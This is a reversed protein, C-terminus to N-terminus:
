SKKKQLESGVFGAELPAKEHSKVRYTAHCKEESGQPRDGLFAAFVRKMKVTM